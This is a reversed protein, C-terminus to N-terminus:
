NLHKGTKISELRKELFPRLDKTLDITRHTQYLMKKPKDERLHIILRGEVEFGADEVMIQYLNTQITYKGFNDQKLNYKTPINKLLEQGYESTLTKNTNHTVIFSHGFLYTHSPSDVEICITPESPVEVAEKITRFSHSDKKIERIPEQNRILFPNFKNTTFNVCYAQFKKGNCKTIFPLLTPKIGLSGLLKVTWEAQVLNTTDMVYRNRLKNYYGDGDFFGRLLDLRQEYSSQFYIDPIHKNM